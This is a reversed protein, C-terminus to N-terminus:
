MRATGPYPQGGWTWRAHNFQAQSSRRETRPPGNVTYRKPRPQERVPPPRHPKDSRVPGHFKINWDDYQNVQFAPQPRPPPFVPIPAPRKERRYGASSPRRFTPFWPPQPRPRTPRSDYSVTTSDDYSYISGEDEPRPRKKLSMCYATVLVIVTLAVIGGLIAGIQASSLSGSGRGPPPPAAETPAPEPPPQYPEEGPVPTPVSPGLTVYTVFTTTPRRITQTIVHVGEDEQRAVLILPNGTPRLSVPTPSIYM